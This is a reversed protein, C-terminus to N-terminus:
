ISQPSAVRKPDVYPRAGTKMAEAILAYAKRWEAEVEATWEDKAVDSLAVLLAEGVWAYMEDRVGYGRHRDGLKGLTEQLWWPDDLHDLVLTLASTLMREQAVRSHPKFLGRVEPHREFLLDYFRTTLNPERAIILEFSGRLLEIEM